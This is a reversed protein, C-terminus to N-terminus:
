MYILHLVIEAQYNEPLAQRCDPGLGLIGRVM